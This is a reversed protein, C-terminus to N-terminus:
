AAHVLCAGSGGSTRLSPALSVVVVVVVLMCWFWFPGRDSWLPAGAGSIWFKRKKILIPAAPYIAAPSAHPTAEFLSRTAGIHVGVGLGGKKKDRTGKEARPERSLSAAKTDKTEERDRERERTKHFRHFRFDLWIGCAAIEVLWPRPRAV